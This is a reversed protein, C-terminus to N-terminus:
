RGNSTGSSQRASSRIPRAPSATILEDIAPNCYNTYNNQAGCLYNAKLVADPDDVASGTLNLAVAYAGKIMRSFYLSLEVIELEAEFYIQNM